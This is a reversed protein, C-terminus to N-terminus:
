CIHGATDLMPCGYVWSISPLHLLLSPFLHVESSLVKWNKKRERGRCIVDNCLQSENKLDILLRMSMSVSESQKTKKNKCCQCLWLCIPTVLPVGVELCGYRCQSRLPEAGPTSTILMSECVPWTRM